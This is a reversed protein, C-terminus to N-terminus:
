ATPPRLTRCLSPPLPNALLLCPLPFPPALVTPARSFSFRRLPMSVERDATQPNESPASAATLTTYSLTSATRSPIFRDSYNSLRGGSATRALSQGLRAPGPGLISSESNRRGLAEAPAGTSPRRSLRNEDDSM